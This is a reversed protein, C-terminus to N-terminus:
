SAERFDEEGDIEDILRQVDRRRVVHIDTGRPFLRRLELRAVALRRELADIRSADTSVREVLVEAEMRRPGEGFARDLRVGVFVLFRYAAWALVAWVLLTLAVTM